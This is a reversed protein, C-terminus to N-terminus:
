NESKLIKPLFLWHTTFTATIKTNGLIKIVKPNDIGSADGSWGAFNWVPDAVATLTVVDGYHYATKDPNIVVSGNGVTIVTLSYEDQTFNVTINTDGQITIDIPNDSSTVDGSWGAFFWESEAIATLTVRDGYHYVTKDPNIAVSGNGITNVTLSYEDLAFTATINTDGQITIDTPNDSSSVDGSWGAFSWGPDSEGTLTVIDNYHYTTQDPAKIVIGNGVVNSTLTYEFADFNATVSKSGDMTISEPNISGSLDGSWNAFEWGTNPIATVSVSDFCAYPGEPNAEVSGDGNTSLTLTNRDGDEPIIPDSTFFFYDFQATFAPIKEPLASPPANLAYVGVNNVTIERTFSQRTTWDTGNFSYSHTWQDGLRAVRMYLPGSTGAPAITINHHTTYTDDIISAALFRIQTENAFFEFRMFNTNPEQEILIGQGQYLENVTSEFKVEIEFDTNDFPQMMRPADTNTEPYLTHGVEAPVSIQLWADDTFRGTVEYASDGLPDVFTWMPNLECSNFDDSGVPINPYVNISPKAAAVLYRSLGSLGLMMALIIIPVTKQWVLIKKNM